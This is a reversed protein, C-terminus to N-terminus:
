TPGLHLRRRASMEFDVGQRLGGTSCPAWAHSMNFVSAVDERERGGYWIVMRAMTGKGIQVVWSEREDDFSKEDM